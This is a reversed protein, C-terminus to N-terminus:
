LFCYFIKQVGENIKDLDTDLDASTLRHDLNQSVKLQIIM